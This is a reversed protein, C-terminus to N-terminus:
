RGSLFCRKTTELPDGELLRKESIEVLVVTVNDSGGASLALEILHDVKQPLTMNSDLTNLIMNEEVMDTLGDSCLLYQDQPLIKSKVIDLEIQQDIGVAKHIVNRLPHKRADEPSMIGKNIQEQVFSHDQTLRRLLGGRFLYTRSDGIHGLVFDQEFFVMLEATCGMGRYAPNEKINHMIAENAKLFCIQVQKAVEAITRHTPKQFVEMATELFIRSAVEGAAAGGLGDAVLCFGLEPAIKFVDENNARKRGVDTKGTTNIQLM